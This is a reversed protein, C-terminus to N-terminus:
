RKTLFLENQFLTLDCFLVVYSVHLVVQFQFHNMTINMGANAIAKQNWMVENTEM